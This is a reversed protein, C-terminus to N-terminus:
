AAHRMVPEARLPVEDDQYDPESSPFALGQTRGILQNQEIVSDHIRGCNM